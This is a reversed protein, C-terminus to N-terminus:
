AWPHPRSPIIAFHLAAKWFGAREQISFAKEIRPHLTSLGWERYTQELYETFPKQFAETESYEEIFVEITEVPMYDLCGVFSEETPNEELITKIMQKNHQFLMPIGFNPYEQRAIVWAESFIELGGENELRSGCWMCFKDHERVQTGCQPCSFGDTM